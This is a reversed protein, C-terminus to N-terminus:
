ASVDLDPDPHVGAVHRQTHDPVLDAEVIRRDRFRSAHRGPRHLCRPGPTAEDRGFGQPQGLSEDLHSRRCWGVGVCQACEANNARPETCRDRAAQALEDPAVGLGLLDARCHGTGPAATTLHEREDTLGAHAFGAEHELERAGM